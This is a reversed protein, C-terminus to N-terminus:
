LPVCHILGVQETTLSYLIKRNTEPDDEIKPTPTTTTGGPKGQLANVDERLQDIIALIPHMFIFANYLGTKIRLSEVTKELIAITSRLAVNETKLLQIQSELDNQGNKNLPHNIRPIDYESEPESASVISQPRQSLSPTVKNSSITASTPLIPCVAQPIDYVSDPSQPRAIDQQPKIEWNSLTSPSKKINGKRGQLSQPLKLTIDPSSSNGTQALISAFLKQKQLQYPTESTLLSTTDISGPIFSNCLNLTKDELGSKISPNTPLVEITVNADLPLELLYGEDAVRTVVLSDVTHLDQITVVGGPLQNSIEHANPGEYYLLCNLPLSLYQVIESLSLRVDVPATSFNGACNELLRKSEGTQVATCVLSRGRFRQKGIEKLALIEGEQISSELTSTEYTKQVYVLPPISATSMIEYVTGFGYGQIANQQQDVPDYLVGFKIATNLPVAINVGNPSTMKVSKSTKICHVNFQEGQSIVENGQVVQVQLPFSQQHNHILEQLTIAQPNPLSRLLLSKNSSISSRNSGSDSPPPSAFSSSEAAPPTMSPRKLFGEYSPRSNMPPLPPPDAMSAKYLAMEEKVSEIDDYADDIPFDNPDYNDTMPPTNSWASPQPIAPRMPTPAPPTHVPQVPYQVPPVPTHAPQVPYQVPQVPTNVPPVAPPTNAPFHMQKPYDNSAYPTNSATTAKPPRIITQSRQKFLDAQRSVSNTIASDDVSGHPPPKHKVPKPAVPKPAARPGSSPKPLTFPPPPSPSSSKLSSAFNHQNGTPLGIPPKSGPNSVNKLNGTKRLTAARAQLISADM